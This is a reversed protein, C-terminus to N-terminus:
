GSWWASAAGRLLNTSLGAMWYAKDVNYTWTLLISAITLQLRVTMTNKQKPRSKTGSNPHIDSEETTHSISDCEDSIHSPLHSPGAAPFTPNSTTTSDQTRYHRCGSACAWLTVVWNKTSNVETAITAELGATTPTWFTPTSRNCKAKSGSVAFSSNDKWKPPMPFFWHHSQWHSQQTGTHSLSLLILSYTLAYVWCICYM